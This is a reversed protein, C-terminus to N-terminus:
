RYLDHLRSTRSRRSRLAGRGGARIIFGLARGLPAVARRWARISRVGLDDRPRHDPPYPDDFDATRPHPSPSRTPLRPSRIRCRDSRRRKSVRIRPTSSAGTQRTEADKCKKLLSRRYTADSLVRRIDLLTTGHTDLLLRVAARLFYILRPTQEGLGWIDSFVSVVNATVKWREDPPVDHLPNLGIVHSLSAPRWYILPQPSSDAMRKASNGHKDLYCFGRGAALDAAM